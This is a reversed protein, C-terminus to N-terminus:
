LLELADVRGSPRRRCRCAASSRDPVRVSQRRAVRLHSHPESVLRGRGCRARTKFVLANKRHLIARMLARECINNDLLPNPVCLFPTLKEWQKRLYNIATGLGSNPEVLKQESQRKLWERLRAM